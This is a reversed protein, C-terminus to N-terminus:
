PRSREYALALLTFIAVSLGLLFASLRHSWEVVVGGTLAPFWSGNTFCTPWNPCALGSNSAAVNGGLLITVYTLILAVVVSYRFWDHGRM